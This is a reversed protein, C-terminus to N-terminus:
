PDMNMKKAIKRTDIKIYVLISQQQSLALAVSNKIIRLTAHKPIDPIFVCCSSFFMMFIDDIMHTVFFFVKSNQVVIHIILLPSIEHSM